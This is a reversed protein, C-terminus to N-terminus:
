SEGLTVRCDIRFFTEFFHSPGAVIEDVDELGVSLLAIGYGSLRVQSEPPVWM